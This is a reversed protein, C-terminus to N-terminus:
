QLAFNIPTRVISRVKEGNYTAPKYKPLLRIVRLAEYDLDKYAGRIVEVHTVTGDTEVVFSLYVKGQENYEISMQPYRLTKVIFENINGPFSAEVFAPDGKYEKVDSKPGYKRDEELTMNQFKKLEALREASFAALYVHQEKTESDVTYYTDYYDGKNKVCITYPTKKPTKKFTYVLSEDVLTDCLKQNKKDIILVQSGGLPKQDTGSAFHFTISVQASSILCAMSAITFLITKKM